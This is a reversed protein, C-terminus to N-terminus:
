FSILIFFTVKIEAISVVANNKFACVTETMAGITLLGNCLGPQERKKLSSNLPLVESREV